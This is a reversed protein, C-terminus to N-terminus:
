EDIEDREPDPFASQEIEVHKRADIYGQLYGFAAELTNVQVVRTTNYVRDEYVIDICDKGFRSKSFKVELHEAESELNELETQLSQFCLHMDQM